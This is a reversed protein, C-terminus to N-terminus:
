DKLADKLVECDSFPLRQKGIIQYDEHGKGAVLVVTRGMKSQVAAHALKVGIQIALRRDGVQLVPVGLLDVYPTQELHRLESVIGAQMGALIQARIHAPNESRPNDDCVICQDAMSRAISGMRHRKGPDRDGGCGFICVVRAVPLERAALLVNELADPTHAYDVLGTLAPWPDGAIHAGPFIPEFRGPVTPLTNLYNLNQPDRISGTALLALGANIRNFGTPVPLNIAPVVGLEAIKALPHGHSKLFNLLRRGAPDRTYLIAQGGSQLLMSFLKQKAQFYSELDGHYDLHDQSLNTFIAKSFFIGALRGMDLAESSVELVVRQVGDLLMNHLIKQLQPARPTTYGTQLSQPGRQAVWHVGLTGVMGCYVGSSKWLHYLMHSVTTKGNTGTIGVLELNRSPEGFFAAALVGQVENADPVIFSVPKQGVHNQICAKLEAVSALDSASIIFVRTLQQLAKHIYKRSLSNVVFISGPGVERSDDSINDIELFLLDDPCDIKWQAVHELLAGLKM